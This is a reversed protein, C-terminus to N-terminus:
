PLGGPTRNKRSLGRRFWSLMEYPKNGDKECAETLRAHLAPSYAQGTIIVKGGAFDQKAEIEWELSVEAAYQNEFRCLNAKQRLSRKEGVVPKHHDVGKTWDLKPHDRTLQDVGDAVIFNKSDFIRFLIEKENEPWDQGEDILIKDWAVEDANEKMFQQIDQRTVVGQTLFGLLEEKLTEYRAM